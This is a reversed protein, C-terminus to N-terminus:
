SHMTNPPTIASSSRWQERGFEWAARRLEPRERSDDVFQRVLDTVEPGQVDLCCLGQLALRRSRHRQGVVIM